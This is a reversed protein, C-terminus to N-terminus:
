YRGFIVCDFSATRPLPVFTELVKPGRNSIQAPETCAATTVTFRPKKVWPVYRKVAKKVTKKVAKKTAKKVTVPKSRPVSSGPLAATRKAKRKTRKRQLSMKACDCAKKIKSLFKGTAEIDFEGAENALCKPCDKRLLLSKVREIPVGFKEAVRVAPLFLSM